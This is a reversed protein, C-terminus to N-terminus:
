APKTRPLFELMSVRNGESDIFSVYKGVDPILMPEGLVKGGAETVKAIAEKVNGVAIVVSPHQAPWDPNKQYFGGNIAGPAKPGCEGSETTMALVYNGMEEGLMQTRWGFATQYFKAIRERNEYPFEFHVVPDAPAEVKPITLVPVTKMHAILQDLAKGWGAHFGMDEHKKRSAEDKHMVQVTYKTGQAHPELTIIATIFPNTGPRYGPGLADTWVLKENEVVELFCGINPFDEGEPSRMVTRFIGGPRLDIECDVTKWPEPTFWQKIHEPRTWAAWILERPLEIVRELMLDLELDPQLHTSTM